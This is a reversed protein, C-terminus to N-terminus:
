TAFRKTVIQYFGTQNYIRHGEMLMSLVQGNVSYCIPVNVFVV